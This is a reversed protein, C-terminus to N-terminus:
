LADEARNDSALAHRGRTRSRSPLSTVNSDGKPGRVLAQHWYAINAEEVVYSHIGDEEHHLILRDYREALEVLEDMGRMEIATRESTPRLTEVEIMWKGYRRAIAGPDDAARGSIAYIAAALVACLLAGILGIVRVTEVPLTLPGASISNAVIEPVPVSDGATPQLPNAPAAVGTPPTEVPALKVRLSDFEFRLPPAFVHKIPEGSLEGNFKVRPTITLVFSTEEVGTMQQVRFTLEKLARLDLSGSVVERDGQFTTNSQLRKTYTWGAPSALKAVLTSSGQVEHPRDADLRADFRIDVDDVLNLFLPEGTEASGSPYVPSKAVDSEYRFRGAIEYRVSQESRRELPRAFAVAAIVIFVLCCAALPALFASRAGAPRHPTPSPVAGTRRKRATRVCFGVFLLIGVAFAMATATVPNGVWRLVNGGQPIVLWKKGLIEDQGPRDQDIFDNNDGRFVFGDATADIIRHLVVRGLSDSRYAAVDGVGYSSAERVIVLDDDHLRPEMSIGDTVVYSVPGGLPQPAFWLYGGIALLVLAYTGLNALLKGTRV